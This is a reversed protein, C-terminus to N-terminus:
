PACTGDACASSQCESDASCPEGALNPSRLGSCGLVFGDLWFGSHNLIQTTVSGSECFSVYTDSGNAAFTDAQSIFQHGSGSAGVDLGNPAVVLPACEIVLSRIVASDAADPAVPDYEGSLGVLVPATEPCLTEPQVEWLLREDPVETPPQGQFPETADWVLVSEDRFVAVTATSPDKSATGCIPEVFTVREGFVGERPNATPRIGVIVGGECRGLRPSGGVVGIRELEAAGDAVVPRPPL